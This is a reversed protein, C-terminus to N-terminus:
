ATKLMPNELQAVRAELKAIRDNLERTSTHHGNSDLHIGTQDMNGNVIVHGTLKITTAKLEVTQQEITVTGSPCKVDINGTASQILVDGDAKVNFKAADTTNLNVDKKFTGKWGAQFDWTLFPDADKNADHKVFTKGDDWVCYDVLPDKVPPPEKSTYFFNLAAYTSTSNPLKVLLVNQGIRPMAFSKKGGASIQLVPIPKTILPNGQHDLKDPMIVRINAHKDTCELKAVRGILISHVFRQDRGDTFDTDALINKGM